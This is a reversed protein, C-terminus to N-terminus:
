GSATAEICDANMNGSGDIAAHHSTSGNIIGDIPGFKDAEGCTHAAKAVLTTRISLLILNLIVSM